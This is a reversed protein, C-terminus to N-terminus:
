KQLNQLIMNNTILGLVPETEKGNQTIFVDQCEPISDVLKKADLLNANIHLFRYGRKLLDPILSNKDDYDLLDGIKLDSPKKNEDKFIVETVFQALTSKHIIYKFIRDKTLFAIRQYKAFKKDNIIDLIKKDRTKDDFELYEIGEFPIMVDKVAIAAIKEDPTLTKIISQYSKSAADFNEKSFFFAIVTGIWTGWLPLLTQAVFDLGKEGKSFLAFIAIFVTALV